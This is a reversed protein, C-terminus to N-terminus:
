KAAVATAKATNPHSDDKALEPTVSMGPRVRLMGNVIVQEGAHLGSRVVRKGETTTGLQVTRYSVKRDDGVTFVFKQSQDTGIARESILLSPQSASVPLRVRAMLGPILQGEDNPFVMRLLLSGTAPDLRNDASEIYGRHTFEDNDSLKMEVPVRGNEDTVIRGERLLRNYKLVTGEDVDAYVYANDVSVITTLLTANSGLSGAVLNGQTILARGVRGRIPSRIKTYELDLRASALRAEAAALAARAEDYRSRRADAEEISVAHDALLQDARAAEREATASQARAREVEASALDFQAQYWRPDIEFLVDGANVIQGADFRVADIHGSVRPRVEVTEIADVRGLLEDYEVVEREEVPAVTVHPGPQQQQASGGSTASPTEANLRVATYTGGGAVLVLAFAIAAFKRRGRFLPTRSGSRNPGTEITHNM